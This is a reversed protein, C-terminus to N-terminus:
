LFTSDRNPALPDTGYDNDGETGKTVCFYLIVLGGFPIIQIWYWWGSKNVDHLRRVLVSVTPLISGLIAIPYLLVMGLAGDLIAGLVSALVVALIFYWYESRSARGSFTVYNTLCSKVAEQLNM